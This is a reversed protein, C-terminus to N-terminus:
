GHYSPDRNVLRLFAMMIKYNAKFYQGFRPTDARDHIPIAIEKFPVKEKLWVYSLETGISKITDFSGYKKYLDMHYGKFGCLIDHVGFRQKFYVGMIKESIRAKFPRAGLVLPIGSKLENHFEELKTIDHQGDADFTIIYKLNLESAKQFGTNLAQDYGQNQQHSIVVAGHKEARLKTEDTSGDDVVIVTGYPVLSAVVRGITEQENLAPIVIALENTAM